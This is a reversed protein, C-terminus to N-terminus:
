NHNILQLSGVFSELVRAMSPYKEVNTLFDIQYVKSVSRYKSLIMKVFIFQNHVIQFQYIHWPLFLFEASNISNVQVISNRLANEFKYRFNDTGFDIGEIESLILYSNRDTDNYADLLIINSKENSTPNKLIVKLKEEIDSLSIRNWNKPIRYSINHEKNTIKKDIVSEDVNFILSQLPNQQTNTEKKRCSSFLMFSSILLILILFNFKM